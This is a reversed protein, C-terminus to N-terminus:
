LDKQTLYCNKLHNWNYTTRTKNFDKRIVLAEDLYSTTRPNKQQLDLVYRWSLYDLHKSSLLPFKTFYDIIKILSVKNHAMVIFSYFQKDGKIRSRSLVNSGLFCSIKSMITFYSQGHDQEEEINIRHYTQRIELRYFLQVRTTNKNSRHHINISFKSDADSFGALWPNSDVFSNDIGKIELTKIKDGACLISKTTSLKTNQNRVIYDNLWVITRNLAEIKPTRMYGNILNVITYVGVIDQIQWLIYGRDSKIYVSGCNTLNKLYEALPLDAKKFVVIIIPRYKLATSNKDHVAITGDGEILGALYAGILSNSKLNTGSYKLFETQSDKGQQGQPQETYQTTLSAQVLKNLTYNLLVILNNYSQYLRSHWLSLNLSFIKAQGCLWNFFKIVILNQKTPSYGERLQSRNSACLHQCPSRWLALAIFNLIIDAPSGHGIFNFNLALAYGAYGSSLCNSFFTNNNIAFSLNKFHVSGFGGM